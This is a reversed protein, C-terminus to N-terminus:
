ADRTEQGDLVWKVYDLAAALDTGEEEDTTESVGQGTACTEAYAIRGHQPLVRAAEETTRARPRQSLVFAFPVKAVSTVAITADVIRLDNLSPKVPILVSCLAATMRHPLLHIASSRHRARDAKRRRFLSLRCLKVMACKRLYALASDLSFCQLRRRM